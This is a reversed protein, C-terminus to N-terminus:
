WKQYSATMKLLKDLTMLYVMFYLCYVSHRTGKSSIPQLNRANLIEIKLIEEMFLMRVTLLGQSATQMAKQNVLQEMRCQHVLEWTDMEHVQLLQELDTLNSLDISENLMKFYEALKQIVDHAKKFFSQKRQLQYFFYTM